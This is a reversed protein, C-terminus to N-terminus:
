RPSVIQVKSGGAGAKVGPAGTVTQAANARAAATRREVEAWDNEDLHAGMAQVNKSVNSRMERLKNLAADRNSSDLVSDIEKREQEASNAGTISHRYGLKAAKLAATAEDQAKTTTWGPLPAIAGWTHAAASLGEVKRIAEDIQALADVDPKAKDIFHRIRTEQQGQARVDALSRGGGPVRAATQAVAVGTRLTDGSFDGADKLLKLHAGLGDGGGTMKSKEEVQAAAYRFSENRLKINRELAAHVGQLATIHANRTVVNEGPGLPARELSKAEAEAQAAAEQMLGVSKGMWSGLKGGVFAGLPGGAAYGAAAGAAGGIALMRKAEEHQPTGPETTAVAAEAAARQAPTLIQGGKVPEAGVMKAHAILAKAVTENRAEQLAMLGQERSLGAKQFDELAKQSTEISKELKKGRVARENALTHMWGQMVDFGSRVSLVGSMIAATIGLARMGDNAGFIREFESRDDRSQDALEKAMADIGRIRAQTEEARQMQLAALQEDRWAHQIALSSAAMAEYPDLRSQLERKAREAAVGSDLHEELLSKDEPPLEPREVKRDTLSMRAPGSARPGAGILRAYEAGVKERLPDAPIEAQMADARAQIAQAQDTAPPPGSAGAAPAGGAPPTTGPSAGAGSYSKLKPGAAQPPVWPGPPALDGASADTATTPPAAAPAAQATAADSMGLRAGADPMQSYDSALGGLDLGYRAAPPAYEEPVEMPGFQTDIKTM